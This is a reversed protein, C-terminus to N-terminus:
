AVSWVSSPAWETQPFSFHYIKKKNLGSQTQTKQLMRSSGLMLALGQIWTQQRRYTWAEGESHRELNTALEKPDPKSDKLPQTTAVALPNSTFIGLCAPSELPRMWWTPCHLHLWGKPTGMRPAAAAGSLEWALWCKIWRGPCANTVARWWREQFEYVRPNAWLQILLLAKGPPLEPLWVKWQSIAAKEPLSTLIPNCIRPWNSTCPILFFPWSLERSCQCSWPWLSFLLSLLLLFFTSQFFAVVLILYFEQYAWNKM